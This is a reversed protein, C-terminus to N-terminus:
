FSAAAYPMGACRMLASESISPAILFISAWLLYLGHVIIDILFTIKLFMLWGLSAAIPRLMQGTDVQESAGTIEGGINVQGGANGGGRNYEVLASSVVGIGPPNSFRPESKIFRANQGQQWVYSNDNLQGSRLMQEIATATVPGYGEKGNLSYFWDAPENPSSQGANAPEQPFMFTLSEAAQWDIRNESIETTRSIRGQSKMELLQPEDFPGFARGKIRVFYSM